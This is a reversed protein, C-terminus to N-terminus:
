HIHTHQQWGVARPPPKPPASNITCYKSTIYKQTLKDNWMLTWQIGGNPFATTHYHRKSSSGCEGNLKHACIVLKVKQDCTASTSPTCSKHGIIKRKIKPEKLKLVAEVTPSEKKCMVQHICDMEPCFTSHDRTRYYTKQVAAIDTTDPCAPCKAIQKWM